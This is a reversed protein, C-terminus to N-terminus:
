RVVVLYARLRPSQTRSDYDSTKRGNGLARTERDSLTNGACQLPRATKASAESLLWWSPKSCSCGPPRAHWPIGLRRAPPGAAPSARRSAQM